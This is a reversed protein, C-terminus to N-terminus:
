TLRSVMTAPQEKNDNNETKALDLRRKRLTHDFITVRPPGTIRKVFSEIHPYYLDKVTEKDNGRLADVTDQPIDDDYYTFGHTDM